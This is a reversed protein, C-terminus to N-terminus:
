EDKVLCWADYDSKAEIKAMICSGCLLGAGEAKGKPKIREWLKDPILLDVKYRKGCDQCKCSM